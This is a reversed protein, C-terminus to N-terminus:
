NHDSNPYLGKAVDRETRANGGIHIRDEGVAQGVKYLFRLVEPHDGMGTEDLVNRFTDGGFADIAKSMVGLSEQFKNGGFETDNKSNAVWEDRTANWADVQAQSLKQMENAQLNVLKQAQDQTLNLEKAIGTFEGMLEENVEVGEPM